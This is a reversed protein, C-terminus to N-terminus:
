LLQDGSIKRRRVHRDCDLVLGSRKRADHKVRRERRMLTEKKKKPPEPSLESPGDTGAGKAMM